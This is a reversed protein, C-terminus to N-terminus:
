FPLEETNSMAKHLLPLILKNRSTFEYSQYITGNEDLNVHLVVNFHDVGGGLQWHRVDAWSEGNFLVRYNDNHKGQEFFCDTAGQKLKRIFEDRMNAILHTVETKTMKM